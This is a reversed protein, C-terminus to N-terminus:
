IYKLSRYRFTPSESARALCTCCTCCLWPYYITFTAAPSARQQTPPHDLQRCEGQDERDIGAQHGNRPPPAFERRRQEDNQAPPQKGPVARQLVLGDVVMRCPQAPQVVCDPEWRERQPQGILEVAAAMQTMMAVVMQRIRDLIRFRRVERGARPQLEASYSPSQVAGAKGQASAHHEAGDQHNYFEPLVLQTVKCDAVTVPPENPKAV